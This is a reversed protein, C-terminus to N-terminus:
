HSSDELNHFRAHTGRATGLFRPERRRDRDEEQTARAARHKQLLQVAPSQAGRWPAWFFLALLLVVVFFIIIGVAVSSSPSSSASSVDGRSTLLDDSPVPFDADNDLTFAAARGRGGPCQNCKQPPAPATIDDYLM